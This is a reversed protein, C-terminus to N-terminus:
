DVARAGLEVACGVAAVAGDADELAAAMWGPHGLQLVPCQDVFPRGFAVRLAAADTWHPAPRM